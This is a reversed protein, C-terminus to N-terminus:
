DFFWAIKHICPPCFLCRKTQKISHSGTTAFSGYLVDFMTLYFVLLCFWVSYLGRLHNIQSFNIFTIIVIQNLRDLSTYM